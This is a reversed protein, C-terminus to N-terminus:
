KVTFHTDDLLQGTTGDFMKVSRLGLPHNAVFPGVCGGAAAVVGDIVLLIGDPKEVVIRIHGPQSVFYCYNVAEGVEYTGFDPRATWICGSLWLMSLEPCSMPESMGVSSLTVFPCDLPTLFMMTPSAFWGDGTLTTVRVFHWAGRELGYLTAGSQEAPLPMSLYPNVAFDDDFRSLDVWQAGQRSPVWALQASVTGDPQCEFLLATSLEAAPFDAQVTTARERGLLAASIVVASFLLHLFIRV